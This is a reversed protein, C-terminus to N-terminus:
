EDEHAQSGKSTEEEARAEQAEPGGESNVRKRPAHRSSIYDYAYAIETVPVEVRYHTSIGAFSRRFAEIFDAHENSFREEDAYTEIPSRTVLREVLCCLHVYLGITTRGDIADGTLDQLQAVAREIECFLTNPNLITISEVVNRLTMNKVLNQHLSALQSMDLIGTLARDVQSAGEGSILDELAIFAVGAVRPNDAGIIARVDYKGFVTDDPGNNLLKRYDCAILRAEPQQEFSQSVLAKIKEAADVGGEACFVIAAQRNSREIISYSCRCADAAGALIDEASRGAMLGAGVELALGTSANNIIGLTMNSVSSLSKHIERLSGMDVLIVVEEACSFRDILQQLPGVVDKLQQDYTMDIAEFIHANLIRNAADAISTATSYGHSLIIGLSSRLSTPRQTLCVHSLLLLRTLDDATVGLIGELEEALRASVSAAFRHKSEVTMRMNSLDSAHENKWKSLSAPPLLQLCIAQALLLSTKRSLETGYAANIEEVIGATIHEYAQSKARSVIHGFALYDELDRLAELIPAIPVEATTECSLVRAHAEIASDLIRAARDDAQGEIGRTTDILQADAEDHELATKSLISAPLQYTRIQLQDGKRSLYSEACCKTICARLGRVNEEFTTTALCRIAGRSVLIDTGM